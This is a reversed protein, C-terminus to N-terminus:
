IIQKDLINLIKVSSFYSQEYMKCKIRLIQSLKLYIEGYPWNPGVDEKKNQIFSKKDKEYPIYKKLHYWVCQSLDIQNM